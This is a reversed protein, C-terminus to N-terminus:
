AWRNDPSTVSPEARLPFVLTSVVLEFCLDRRQALFYRLQPGLHLLHQPQHLSKQDNGLWSGPHEVMRENECSTQYGQERGREACNIFLKTQDVNTM